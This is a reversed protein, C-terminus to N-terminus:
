HPFSFYKCLVPGLAVKDVVFDVHVPWTSFGRTQRSVGIVLRRLWPLVLMNDSARLGAQHDAIPVGFTKRELSYKTAEDLARQALGTASSAVQLLLILMYFLFTTFEDCPVSFVHVGHLVYLKGLTSYCAIFLTPTRINVPPRTKDFAGMAIKFGAGEGLLLNEKPVRVDEFTVGRTDSCRQGM